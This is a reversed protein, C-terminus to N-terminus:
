ANNWMQCGTLSFMQFHEGVTQGKNSNRVVGVRGSSGVIMQVLTYMETELIKREIENFGESDEGGMWFRQVKSTGKGMPPWWGVQSDPLVVPDSMLTSTIPDLLEEPTEEGGSGAPDGGSTRLKQRRAVASSLLEGLEVM